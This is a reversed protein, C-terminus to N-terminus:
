YQYDQINIFCYHLPSRGLSDQANFDAGQKILINELDFSANAGKDAINVAHHLSTRKYNDTFNPCAGKSLLFEIFELNNSKINNIAM